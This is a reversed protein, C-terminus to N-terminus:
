IGTRKDISEIADEMEDSFWESLKMKANHKVEDNIYAAITAIGITLVGLDDTFGLLPTLDPIADIPALFYGLTGLVINKAWRPTEKRKYAYFLLLVAYVVQGGAQKAFQAVKKWLKKESFRKKMNRKM